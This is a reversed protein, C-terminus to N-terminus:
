GDDRQSGRRGSVQVSEVVIRFPVAAPMPREEPPAPLPNRAAARGGEPEATRDDRPERSASRRSDGAPLWMVYIEGDGDRESRFAIRTGDPSWAPEGDFVDNDMLQMPSSGNANMVYVEWDGDRFSAFAIKTGDPSWAPGYDSASNTLRVPSRGNANMAYVDAGGDRESTFAIRTEDPSWAPETDSAAREALRAQGSGDHNMVYIEYNGDRDSAFAIRTGDPSWAPNIDNNSDNTLNTVRTGDADMVHIEWNRGDRDSTFAIKTGDPSWAPRRDTRSHDTLRTEGTGDANMVYIDTNGGRQSEFAIRTGDPSWAPHRDLDANKTLQMVSAPVTVAVDQEATLEGPDHATATITATGPAVATITLVSGSAMAPVTAVAPNSSSATYRLADADPDTFYPALNVDATQTPEISQPPITSVAVPARNGTQVTVVVTQPLARLGAPDWAILTLTAQGAAVGTVTVISGSIAVSAVGPHSSEVGYDLADGDPDRFYRSADVTQTGGVALSIPDITGVREPRRNSESITLRAAISCNNATNTEGTVADVCMGFYTTGAAANTQVPITLTIIWTANPALTGVRADNSAVRDSTTITADDSQHARANTASSAADGANRITFEVVVTDGPAVTIDQPDVRSFELDPATARSVTVAVNQTATRGSPDRATVTVTATGVAVATLTLNSGSMTATVAARNTSAATYTLADGDPDRFYSAIDLTETRGPVLRQSPISGVAEPARNPTRVTVAVRQTATLGSPDRATVTVTATGAVVGTLTLSSGSIAASVVAANSTEATYTLADGDPDRFHSAVGLRLTQGANVSQAPITGVAQPARNPTQVTVAVNQTATLGSPDRATVTVTARGAAVGALTLRSGSIGASVVAANSTAATYTLADGDPDRFNSAVDLRVTQGTNVSQAPISGVAQPARNPTQVTVAVSQEATLGGPDRATVTVTARGEAVGVLTLRSGSMSVSVVGAASTAATFGLGDGDPDRFYSLVGLSVTQGADLSQAPIAGVTEPARNPTQVTVAVSQAATLGGRDAATVTVTATGDAVGVLTLSSGSVAVSVVGPNSTTATYTLTGGDPDRFYSAVDLTATEGTNVSQPPIAGVAQPAQNPPPPPPEPPLPEGGCAAALAIGVLYLSLRGTQIRRTARGDM